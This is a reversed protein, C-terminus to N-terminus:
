YPFFTNAKRNASILICLNGKRDFMHSQYPNDEDGALSWDTDIHQNVGNEYYLTFAVIDGHKILRQFPLPRENEDLYCGTFNSAVNAEQKIRVAIEAASTTEKIIKTDPQLRLNKQLNYMHLVEIEDATFTMSEVSELVFKIKELVPETREEWYDAEPEPHAWRRAVEQVCEINENNMIECEVNDPIEIIRIDTKTRLWSLGNARDGLEEIVAILDKDSRDISRITNSTYDTQKRKNIEDIAEHSLVFGEHAGSIAIKTM